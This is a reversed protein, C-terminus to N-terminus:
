KSLVLETEGPPKSVGGASRTNYRFFIHPEDSETFEEDVDNYELSYGVGLYYATPFLEELIIHLDTCVEILDDVTTGDAGSFYLQSHRGTDGSGKMFESKQLDSHMVLETAMHDAITDAVRSVKIDQIVHDPASGGPLDLEVDLAEDIKEELSRADFATVVESM